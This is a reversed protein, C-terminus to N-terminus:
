KTNKRIYHQKSPIVGRVGGQPNEVDGRRRPILHIHCHMITQGAITGSNMGINFGLVKNDKKLIIKRMKSILDNCANIEAQYLGFYNEIHRKPIILCHHKSVPYSDFSAYALENEFYKGKVKDKCFICNQSRKNFSDKVKRFDTKSKNKKMSNCSYCLAQYNSLEDKGGLSKPYIHDVELAKVDNSIGCSECRTKARELVQWRISGSIKGSSRSRHEFVKKGRKKLFTNIKEDCLKLIEQKQIDTLDNYEKIFFSNKKKFIIDLNKTLVKGPMLKVIDDYYKLAWPDYMLFEKAIEKSTNKGENKVLSKIMVPQYIHSMRMKKKIYNKLIKFPM